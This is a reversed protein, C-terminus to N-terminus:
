LRQHAQRLGTRSVTLVFEEHASLEAYREPTLVVAEDSNEEAEM